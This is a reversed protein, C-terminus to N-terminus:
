SGKSSANNSYQGTQAQQLKLTEIAIALSRLATKTQIIATVTSIVGFFITLLFIILATWLTYLQVTNRRDTLAHTLNRSESNHIRRLQLLRGRWYHYENLDLPRRQEDFPPGNHFTRKKKKMFNDTDKDGPPFLLNLTWITERLLAGSFVPRALYKTKKPDKSM